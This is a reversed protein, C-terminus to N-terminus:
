VQRADGQCKEVNKQEIDCLAKIETGEINCISNVHTPGRMGLGIFGVQRDEDQVTLLLVDKQGAPRM